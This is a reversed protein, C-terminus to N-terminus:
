CPKSLTWFQNVM